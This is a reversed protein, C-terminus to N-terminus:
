VSQVSWACCGCLRLIVFFLFFPWSSQFWIIISHSSHQQETAAKSMPMALLLRCLPMPNRSLLRTTCIRLIIPSNNNNNNNSNWKSFWFLSLLTLGFSDDEMHTHTCYVHGWAVTTYYLAARWLCVYFFSILLRLSPTSLSLSVFFLLLPHVSVYLLLLLLIFHGTHTCNYVQRSGDLESYSFFSHSYFFLIFRLLSVSFFCVRSTVDPIISSHQTGDADLLPLIGCVCLCCRFLSEM